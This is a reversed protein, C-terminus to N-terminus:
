LVAPTPTAEKLPTIEDEINKEYVRVPSEKSFPIILNPEVGGKPKEYQKKRDQHTKHYAESRNDLM